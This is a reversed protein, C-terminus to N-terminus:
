DSSGSAHEGTFEYPLAGDGVFHVGNALVSEYLKGFSERDIQVTEYAKYVFEIPTQPSFWLTRAAAVGDFDGVIVVTFSKGGSLVERTSAELYALAEDPLNITSGGAYILKGM